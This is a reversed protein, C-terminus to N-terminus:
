TQGIQLIQPDKRHRLRPKVTFERPSTNYNRTRLVACDRLREVGLSRYEVVGAQLGAGRTAPQHFM